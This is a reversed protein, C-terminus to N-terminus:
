KIGEARGSWLRSRGISILVTFVVLPLMTVIVRWLIGLFEGYLVLVASLCLGIFWTLYGVGSRASFMRKTGLALLFGILPSFALSFWLGFNMQLENLLGTTYSSNGRAGVSYSYPVIYNRLIPGAGIPKNPWVARPVFNVLGAVYTSGMLLDQPHEELWLLNENNGFAGNLGRILQGRTDDFFVGASDVDFQNGRFYGLFSFGVVLAAAIALLRFKPIGRGVVWRRSIWLALLSLVLLFISNRSGTMFFFYFCYALSVIFLLFSLRRLNPSRMRDTTLYLYYSTICAVYIWNTLLVTGGFSRNALRDSLYGEVGVTHINGLVSWSALVGVCLCGVVLALILKRSLRAEFISKPVQLKAAFRVYTALSLSLFITAFLMVEIHTSVAYSLKYRYYREGYQIVPVFFHVLCFFVAFLFVPVHYVARSQLRRYVVALVLGIVTLSVLAVLYFM